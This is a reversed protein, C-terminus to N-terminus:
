NSQLRQAHRAAHWWKAAHRKIEHMQANPYLKRLEATAKAEIQKPTQGCKVLTMVDARAQPPFTDFIAKDIAHKINESLVNTNSM